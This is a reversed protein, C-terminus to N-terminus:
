SEGGRCRALAALHRQEAVFFGEDSGLADHFKQSTEILEAVADRAEHGAEILNRAPDDPDVGLSSFALLRGIAEVADVGSM